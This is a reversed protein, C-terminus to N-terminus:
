IRSAIYVNFKQRKMERAMRDSFQNLTKTVAKTNAAMRSELASYDNIVIPQGTARDRPVATPLSAGLSLLDQATVDPFVEAGKPLDLLTPKDPTVWAKGDYMVLEQCGGDGVLALGGPHPKGKTGEAYAKIPQALATALQIAGMAGIFIAGPIGAPWGLQAYTQMIGLATAMGIQAITNAKEVMAKRYEIQAKKKELQEQKAATAAAADRKRIEAEETTIAGHEALNDIHSVEQDYRTQEAELLEEIKAIQNDYLATVFGSIKDIAEGAKQMWDQLNQIRKQQADKEKQAAEQTADAEREKQAIVADTTATRIGIEADALSKLLEMAEDHTLGYAELITAAADLEGNKVMATLEVIMDEDVAGIAELQKILIDYQAQATKIAYQESLHATQEQYRKKIESIKEEYGDAEALEKAYKDKLAELENAYQADRMVQEAEGQSLAKEIEKQALQQKHELIENDLKKEEETAQHKIGESIDATAAEVKAIAKQKEEESMKSAKIDEKLDDRKKEAAAIDNEKKQRIRKKEANLWDETYKEELESAYSYGSLLIANLENQIDEANKVQPTNKGGGGKSPTNKGGGGGDGGAFNAPELGRNKVFYEWARKAMADYRAAVRHMAELAAKNGQEKSWTTMRSAQEATLWTTGSPIGGGYGDYKAAEKQGNNMTLGAKAFDSRSVRDGERYIKYKFTSLKELEQLKLQTIRIYEAYGAMAMARRKIAKEVNPTNNMYNKEVARVSGVSDASEGASKALTEFDTKHQVLYKRKAAIDDGLANWQERMVKYKAIMEGASNGFSQAMNNMSEKREDAAKKAEVDATTADKTAATYGIILGVVALIATALLVYPNAKAVVNFAAQAITQAKTAGTASATAAAEIKSAAAKAKSQLIAIGKMVNSQRQTILQLKELAQVSQMAIQVKEMSQELTENSIGLAQAASTCLGFVSITAQAVENLTDFGRTDSASNSISEKVDGLVDKLEGAQETLEGIKHKLEQGAASNKEEETMHQYELTAAAIEMTLEKLDKRLSQPAADAAVADMEGKLEAIKKTLETMHNVLEKGKASDKEEDSLKEFQGTLATLEFTLKTIQQGAASNAVADNVESMTTKILGAKETLQEISANLEQGEASQRQAEDMENYQLKLATLTETMENYTKNLGGQAIAYNGVNRQFEGMDAALDKLRADLNQIEAELLRGEEGAKESENLGKQAKKLLELQQSLHVYSGEAANMEKAQVRVVSAVEQMATKLRNQEAMLNGSRRIAEADTIQGYKRMEEVKKLAEKNRALEATYQALQRTNQEYTGVIREAIDLAQLNQTFATRQAKNVKEQEALQRSITNTTNAIVQQQQQLQQTYQQTAQTARQMVDNSLQRLASLDGQVEVPIKLGKALEMACDKFQAMTGEMKRDLQELQDLAQQAVLDTILTENAM